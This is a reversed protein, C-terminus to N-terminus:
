DTFVRTCYYAIAKDKTELRTPKTFWRMPRLPRTCPEQLPCRVWPSTTYLWAGAMRPSVDTAYRLGVFRHMCWVNRSPAFTFTHIMCKYFVARDRSTRVHLCVAACTICAHKSLLAPKLLRIRQFWRRSNKRQAELAAVVFHKM